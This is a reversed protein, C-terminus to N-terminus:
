YKDLVVHDDWSDTVEVETLPNYNDFQNFDIRDGIKYGGIYVPEPPYMNIIEIRRMWQKKPEEDIMKKYIKDLKQVSTFIILNYNNLKQGGKINLYHKNYDILNIFESPKMHNDRFDDYIAIKANGVGSYFGNEFKIRNFKTGLSEKHDRVINKAKETKGIGSPGQIWYVKIEKEWDDIDLDAEQELKLRKWTNVMRYDPLDEINDIELLSQVSYGGSQPKFTGFEDILVATVGESIHKDDKCDIYDIIKQTSGFMKPKIHAGHLKKTSLRPMSQNLQYFIHYHKEDQGLHEVVKM